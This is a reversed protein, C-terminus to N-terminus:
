YRRGKAREQRWANDAADILFPEAHIAERERELSPDPQEKRYQGVRRLRDGDYRNAVVLAYRQRSFIMAGKLTLLVGLLAPVLGIHVQDLLWTAAARTNSSNGPDSLWAWQLEPIFPLVPAIAKAALQSHDAFLLGVPLRPWARTDLAISYQWVLLAALQVVLLVGVLALSVGFLRIAWVKLRFGANMSAGHQAFRSSAAITRGSRNNDIPSMAAFVMRCFPRTM